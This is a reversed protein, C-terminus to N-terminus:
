GLSDFANPSWIRARRNVRLSMYFCTASCIPTMPSVTVLQSRLADVGTMRWMGAMM